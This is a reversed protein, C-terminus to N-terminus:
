CFLLLLFILNEIIGPQGNSNLLLDMHYYISKLLTNHFLYFYNEKESLNISFLKITEHICSGLCQFLNLFYHSIVCVLNYHLWVREVFLKM